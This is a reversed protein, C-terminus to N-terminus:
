RARGCDPSSPRRRPRRFPAAVRTRARSHMRHTEPSKTYRVATQRPTQPASRLSDDEEKCLRYRSAALVNAINAPDPVGCNGFPALTLTLSATSDVLM